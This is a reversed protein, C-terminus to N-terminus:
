PPEMDEQIRPRPSGRAFCLFMPRGRLKEELLQKPQSWGAGWWGLAPLSPVLHWTTAALRQTWPTPKCQQRGSGPPSPRSGLSCFPFGPPTLFSAPRGPCQTLFFYGWVREQGLNPSGLLRCKGLSQLQTSVLSPVEKPWVKSPKPGLSLPTCGVETDRPGGVGGSPGNPPQHPCHCSRPPSTWTPGDGSTGVAQLREVPM